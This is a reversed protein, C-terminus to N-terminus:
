LSVCQDEGIAPAVGPWAQAFADLAAELPRMIRARRSSLASFPPRVATSWICSTEVPVIHDIAHGVRKAAGRALDFWSVAGENVLHWVGSEKDILLDLVAHVLDPIYTPSMVTDIPAGFREGRDLTRFVSGLFTGDDWPGFPVSTRVVLADPLVDMVRREVEAKCAGYVNLPKPVDGELYAHRQQGDFVLDSSFTVFRIGQRQCVAALVAPETVLLRFCTAPDREAADVPMSRRADVVAWPEYMRLLDELQTVNTVDMEEEDVLHNALGRESCIQAFARGLMNGAGVIVIGPTTRSGSPELRARKHLLRNPRRWWGRGSLVPDRHVGGRALTTIADALATRRPAPARVDFAGPEYHGDDRTVLSQWNFSGLLGWATVARVDAGRARAALAGAWSEILWRVQEDRTCGLHVETIAVPIGYRKWASVLHAEHGVIGQRRGRVAETDVYRIEGNGGPTTSPYRHCRDDLYRDSTVYYNLGLVSPLCEATQFFAEDDHTMGHRTLFGYLPHRDDVRGTLLDWTLWRRHGEHEAQRRTARRGFTQGCDETQILRAAPSVERVARMALVVGRLQNLLARIYGRDCHGHPYWHGYLGSFRATTLPENVPTFDVLWPYRRAVAGAYRALKEPFESDLLSTYSPGSGHHVLGAIPRIGLARLYPLREDSWGWDFDALSHPATREWLVPYRLTRIGLSAFRDLDDLRRDHGSWILQDFWRDGVRNVTAEIGGWIELPAQAPLDGGDV